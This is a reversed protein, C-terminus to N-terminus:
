IGMITQEQVRYLSLSEEVTRFTTYLEREAKNIKLGSKYPRPAKQKLQATPIPTILNGDLEFYDAIRRAFEYRTMFDRGGIHLIGSVNLKIVRKIGSCLDDVITTNGWQDNVINVKEGARLKKLLWTVFCSRITKGTGYLVITRLIAWDINSGRIINEAALKSKGYYGIPDPLDDEDYPGNKGNFVYDSSIFILKAQIRAAGKLVSETAKVNIKWCQERDVECQDVDTMAATHIIVEPQILKIKEITKKPETLDHKFYNFDIEEVLTSEALDCGHLDNKSISISHLLKQGLLGNSGTILIKM